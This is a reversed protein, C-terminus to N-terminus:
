LTRKLLESKWSESLAACAALEAAAAPNTKELHMVHHARSVPWAPHPRELLELRGGPQVSGEELVRLYWGPRCTHIMRVVLDHIRWRRAQKWCPRRPQSVQVVAAGISYIDGICVDPEAVGSVTFNEGFAGPPLPHPFIEGRWLPYHDASYVLVAKDQGGHRQLDAHEDGALGERSMWIPGPVPDKATATTWPQDQPDAASPQGYSRVPGVQISTILSM